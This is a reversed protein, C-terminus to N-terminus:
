MQNCRPHAVSVFTAFTSVLYFDVPFLFISLWLKLPLLSLYPTHAEIHLYRGVDIIVIHSTFTFYSHLFVFFILCLFITSLLIILKLINTYKYLYTYVCINISIHDFTYTQINEYIYMHVHTQM